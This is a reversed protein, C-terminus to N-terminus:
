GYIRSKQTVTRGKFSLVIRLKYGELLMEEAQKVSRDLDGKSTTASIQIEKEKDFKRKARNLSEQIRKQHQFKSYDVIKCVPKFRDFRIEVVSLDLELARNIADTLKYSAHHKGTEDILEIEQARIQENKKPLQKYGGKRNNFSNNLM